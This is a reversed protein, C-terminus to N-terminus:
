DGSEVIASYLKLPSVGLDQEAILTYTATGGSANGVIDVSIDLYCPVALRNDIHGQVISQSWGIRQYIGDTQFTPTYGWNYLADRGSNFPNGAPGNAFIIMPAIEDNALYGNVM